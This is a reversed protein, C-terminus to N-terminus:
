AKEKEALETLKQRLMTMGGPCRLVPTGKSQMAAEVAHSIKSTFSFAYDVHSMSKLKQLSGDTEFFRLDFVHGFEQSIYGAQTPLLGAILVTPLRVKAPVVVRAAAPRVTEEVWTEILGHSLEAVQGAIEDRLAEMLVRAIRRGLLRAVEDLPQAMSTPVPKEIPLQVPAPPFTHELPLSVLPVRLAERVENLTRTAVIKRRPAPLVAAQARDIAAGLSRTDPTAGVRKLENVVAQLEDPHWFVKKKTM